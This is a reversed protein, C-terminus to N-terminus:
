QISRITNQIIDQLVHKDRTLIGTMRLGQFANFLTYAHVEASILENIQGERQGEIVLDKFLNISKDQNKILWNRLESDTDSLEAKCNMIFCGRGKEEQSTTEIATSLIRKIAELPGSSKLLAKQFVKNSEAEYQELSAKYLSQKSGFSNYISSRNLGTADVLDQISTGNYGKDWFVQTAKSIIDARNFEEQRPM